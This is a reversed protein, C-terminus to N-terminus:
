HAALSNSLQGDGLTRFGFRLYVTQDHVNGVTSTYSTDNYSLSISFSDNDYGIGANDGSLVKDKLDYRIGGFLRWNPTIRLNAATQIESRESRLADLIQQAGAFGATQYGRLLDYYLQPTKRYAWTVSASLPGSTGSAQIDARNLRFDEGGFRTQASIRFGTTSDLSLRAVWDSANTELGSGFATIPVARGLQAQRILNDYSPYSFSNTGALLFSRGILASLTGGSAANFTYRGGLNARTGGESRDWGSFKDTRFLTTDDFVVSQADENPLRGMWQENPRVVLQGIPELTHAGIKTSAVFPYAYDLALTPTVRGLSGDRVFGVLANDRSENYFVDGRLSVSPTIMQGFDDIFLRKWTLLGSMRSFSGAVGYVQGMTDIDTRTRSLSTLNFHGSIEGGAVSKESVMDYDIVPHVVPQKDQLHLGSGWLLTNGARDYPNDDSTVNFKYVRADFYSKSGLGVLYLNSIARDSADGQLHYDSLFRRDTTFSGDWGWTWNKNITFAATSVVAGRSHRDGSTDHFAEPHLQNIGIARLTVLGADFAHRVEIDGLFGQKSMAVPSLTMDWDTVPAWYFPVQMGLGLKTSDIVRPMLFGTRRRETPDPHMFFPVYAIPVGMMELRADEYRVTKEQQDHVIKMAKIQWFPPKEPENVCTQCASYVGKEFVTTQGGSRKASEAAFRSRDISEVRLSDIFGESFNDSVDMRPSTLVNGDRDVLRADGEAVVRKTNRNYVVQRATLINGKYYLHVKGLSTVTQARDDYVVQDAEVVLHESGPQPGIPGGSTPAGNAPASAAAAEPTTARGAAAVPSAALVLCIFSVGVALARRLGREAAQGRAASSVDRIQNMPTVPTSTEIAIPKRLVTMTM